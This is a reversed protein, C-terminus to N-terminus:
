APAVRELLSKLEGQEAEDGEAGFFFDTEGRISLKVTGGTLWGEGIEIREIAAVHVRRAQPGFGFFELV